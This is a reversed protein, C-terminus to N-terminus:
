AHQSIKKVSPTIEKAHWSRLLVHQVFPFTQKEQPWEPCDRKHQEVSSRAFIGDTALLTHTELGVMPGDILCDINQVSLSCIILGTRRHPRM